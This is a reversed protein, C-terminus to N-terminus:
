DHGSTNDIEDQIIIKDTCSLYLYAEGTAKTRSIWVGLSYEQGKVKVNGVFDPHSEKSKLKNFFAAGRNDKYEAM